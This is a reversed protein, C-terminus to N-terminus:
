RKFFNKNISLTLVNNNKNKLIKFPSLFNTPPCPDPHQVDGSPKADKCDCPIYNPGNQNQGELTIILEEGDMASYSTGDPNGQKNIKIVPNNCCDLGEGPNNNEYGAYITGDGVAYIKNDSTIELCCGTTELTVVFPCGTSSMTKLSKENQELLYEVTKPCLLCYEWKSEENSVIDIFIYNSNSPKSFLEVDEKNEEIKFSKILEGKDDKVIFENKGQNKYCIVYMAEEHTTFHKNSTSKDGM